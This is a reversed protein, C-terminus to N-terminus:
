RGGRALVNDNRSIAGPTCQCQLLVRRARAGLKAFRQGILQGSLRSLTLLMRLTIPRKAPRLKPEGKDNFGELVQPAALEPLLKGMPEDLNLKGQEV